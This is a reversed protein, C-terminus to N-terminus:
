IEFRIMKRKSRPFDFNEVLCLPTGDDVAQIVHFSATKTNITSLHHEEDTPVDQGEQQTRKETGNTSTSEQSQSTDDARQRRRVRSSIKVPSRYKLEFVELSCLENETLDCDTSETIMSSSPPDIGQCIKHTRVLGFTVSKRVKTSDGRAVISLVRPEENESDSEGGGEPFEEHSVEPLDEFDLSEAREQQITKQFSQQTGLYRAECDSSGTKGNTDSPESAGKELNIESLIMVPASLDYLKDDSLINRSVLTNTTNFRPLHVIMNNRDESEYNTLSFYSAASSDDLCILDDVVTTNMKKHM